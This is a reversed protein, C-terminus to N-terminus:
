MFDITSFVILFVEQHDIPYSTTVFFSGDEDCEQRSVTTVEKGCITIAPMTEVIYHFIDGKNFTSPIDYGPFSRWGTVPL